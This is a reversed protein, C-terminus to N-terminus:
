RTGTDALQPSIGIPIDINEATRRFVQMLDELRKRDEARMRRIPLRCTTSITLGRQQLFVKASYPYFRDAAADMMNLQANLDKLQPSGDQRGYESVLFTYLEPYFNAGIPSIGAAGTELSEVATPTNANFVQLPSGQVAAVKSRIADMDCSTDKHYFFRGTQGLWRMQEPSLLRKYPDPCEYLGLPINGTLTMLQEARRRFIDDDEEIDALQNTIVIVADVGTDYMRKIFEAARRMDYSFTGTAVVPIRPKAVSVVTRAVELREEDTLQFMESSLCNAFLGQAGTDLYFATLSRLGEIDVGNDERFPTLMVPWLGGPLQNKHSTDM